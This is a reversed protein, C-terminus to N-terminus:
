GSFHQHDELGFTEFGFIIVKNTCKNINKIFSEPIQKVRFSLVSTKTLLIDEHM